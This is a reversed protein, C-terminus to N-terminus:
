RQLVVTSQYRLFVQPFPLVCLRWRSSGAMGAERCAPRFAERVKKACGAGLLGGLILAAWARGRRM